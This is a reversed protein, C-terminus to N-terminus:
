WGISALQYFAAELCTKAVVSASLYSSTTPYGTQHNLLHGYRVREIRFIKSLEWFNGCSPQKRDFCVPQGKFNPDEIGIRWFDSNPPIISRVDGGLNVM